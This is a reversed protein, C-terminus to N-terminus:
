VRDSMSNLLSRLAKEQRAVCIIIVILLGILTMPLALVIMEVRVMIVFRIQQSPATFLSAIGAGFLSVTLAITLNYKWTALREIQSWERNWTTFTRLLEASDKTDIQGGTLVQTLAVLREDASRPKVINIFDRKDIETKELFREELEKTDKDIGRIQDSWGLLAIFLALGSGFLFLTLQSFSEQVQTAASTSPQSVVTQDRLRAKGNTTPVQEIAEPVQPHSPQPSPIHNANSGPNARASDKSTPQRELQLTLSFVFAAVVIPLHFPINMLM